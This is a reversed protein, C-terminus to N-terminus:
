SLYRKYLYIRIWYLSEKIWYFKNSTKIFAIKINHLGKYIMGNKLYELGRKGIYAFYEENDANIDLYKKCISDKDRYFPMDIYDDSFGLENYIAITKNFYNNKSLDDGFCAIMLAYDACLKYKTNFNGYKQFLEYHTFIAQHCIVRKALREKDYEQGYIVKAHKFYVNGYIFHKDKVVNASGFIDILVDECLEDDSGLFYLWEGAVREIGKNMADYIGKDKGSIYKIHTYKEAYAQIISLTDDTSVGDIIWHELNPYHQNAVSDICEKLTKASNFTPTIISIKPYEM